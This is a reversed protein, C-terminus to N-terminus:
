FLTTAIQMRVVKLSPNWLVTGSVPLTFNGIHINKAANVGVNVIDFSNEGNGYLHTEGNFAFGAGVFASLSVDGKYVPYAAEIYTSYRQANDGDNNIEQDATGYLLVNAQLSMPFEDGLYYATRLDFIHTTTDMDYNFVKPETIGRTNFLDWFGITVNKNSYELFYDIEKYHTNDNENSIATGGWIGIKWHKDADINYHVKGTVSPKDSIILGRWLHNTEIGATFEVKDKLTEQANIQGAYILTILVFIYKKM